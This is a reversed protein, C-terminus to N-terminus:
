ARVAKPAASWDGFAGGCHGPTPRVDALETHMLAHDFTVLRNGSQHYYVGTLLTILLHGIFWREGEDFQQPDLAIGIPHKPPIKNTLRLLHEKGWPENQFLAYLTQATPTDLQTAGSLQRCLLVFRPFDVTDAAAAYRPLAPLVTLAALAVSIRRRQMLAPQPARKVCNAKSM